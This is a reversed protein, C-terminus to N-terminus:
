LEDVTQPQYLKSIQSKMTKWINEIPNLDPSHAPWNLKQIDHRNRWDTSARATHILANDEMLLICQCGRIWPAKEMWAHADPSRILPQGCPKGTAVERSTDRAWDNITWHRHTLKHIERHITQTSVTHTMLDTVQAVTLRCGRTIIRSLEQRDQETMITRRGKKKQTRVTGIRQYKEITNYVTMLPIGTLDSIVRFSLGAQRMGVLRGRTKINLYPM